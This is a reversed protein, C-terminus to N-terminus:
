IQWSDQDTFNDCARTDLVNWYLYFVAGPAM